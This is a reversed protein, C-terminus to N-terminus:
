LPNLVRRTRRRTRCLAGRALCQHIPAFIETVSPITAQTDNPHPEVLEPVSVLPPAEPLAPLAVSPWASLVVASLPALPQHREPPPFERVLLEVFAPPCVADPLPPAETDPEPFPPAPPSDTAPAPPTVLVLAPSSPTAQTG